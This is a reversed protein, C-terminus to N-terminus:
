TPAQAQCAPTGAAMMVAGLLHALYHVLNDEGSLEKYSGTPLDLDSPRL